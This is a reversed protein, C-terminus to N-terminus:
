AAVEMLIMTSPKNNIQATITGGSDFTEFQTKYVVASTTAPSDLYTLNALFGYSLDNTGSNALYLGPLYARGGSLPSPSYIAVEGSIDQILRYGGYQYFLTRSYALLQTVLILIKSSASTPTITATLGTNTYTTNSIVTQTSYTNQVVQLINGARELRDLTGGTTPLTFTQDGAVAPANIESYGSTSGRISIAGNAQIISSGSATPVGVLLKSSSDIRVGENGNTVLGLENAAPNYIGTDLDTDFTISPASESGSPYNVGVNVYDAGALIVGFFSHGTTPASAFVINSGVLNFGSTGSPDPEQVVGNVSILCQQPNIPFPVPPVGGVQLPFSTLSSNFSSSIDDIIKYSQYAVQLDNGLYAM